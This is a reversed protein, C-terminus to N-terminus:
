AVAPVGNADLQDDIDAGLGAHQELLSTRRNAVREATLVFAERIATPVDPRWTMLLRTPAADVVPVAVVASGIRDTTSEGAMIIMEGLAVKDITADLTPEPWRPQFLEDRLLDVGEPRPDVLELLAHGFERVVNGVDLLHVRPELRRRQRGSARQLLDRAM